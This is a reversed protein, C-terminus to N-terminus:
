GQCPNSSTRWNVQSGARRPALLATAELWPLSPGGAPTLVQWILSSVDTLGTLTPIVLLSVNALLRSRARLALRPTCLLLLEACSKSVLDVTAM